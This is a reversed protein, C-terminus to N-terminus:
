GPPLGCSTGRKAHYDQHYDEAEWFQGAKEIPVVQTAIRRDSYRGKQQEDIFQEAEALQKEDAAFIASRYQTGIDPGQRNVQTPDHFRFFNELLQRYSIRAPDYVIKVAEAHGTTGDCVQKYTPNKVHGGQYGSIADIVGPLREFRDEIGWFCGGAFYAIETKVPQAAPPLEEGREYFTLSASNLCYRRGTPRPGDDFVHGLHGDCRSCLIETRVMGFSEDTKYRIHDKDVPQFFSPWGTQSNFKADSAFLPLDCLKCVYVGQKKNDLLTGCFAMETGKRLIIRAEEATLKKALEEIREPSLPTLDHGSKSYPPRPSDDFKIDMRRAEMENVDPYPITNYVQISVSGALVIAFLALLLKFM